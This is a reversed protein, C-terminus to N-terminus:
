KYVYSRCPEEGLKDAPETIYLPEGGPETSETNQFYCHACYVPFNSRGFTMPQKSKIKLFNFPPEYYGDKVLRGGSGCAIWTITFKDDDEVIKLPQLHGRLGSMLMQVKQKKTKNAYRKGLHTIWNGVTEEFAEHLIKDGYRKGIFSLLDTIWNRYLDHMSLFENYMRQSLIKAKELDGAEISAQLVDLTRKGMSELEEETFIRQNSM